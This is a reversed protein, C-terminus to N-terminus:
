DACPVSNWDRTWSSEVLQLAALGMCWLQQAWTGLALSNCDSFSWLRHEAILSAEAILLRHQAVLSYGRSVTVLSLECAAAFVWGLWFNILSNFYYFIKLFHFWLSLSALVGSQQGRSPDSSQFIWLARTPTKIRVPRGSPCGVEAPVRQWFPRRSPHPMMELSNLLWTSGLSHPTLQIGPLSSLSM